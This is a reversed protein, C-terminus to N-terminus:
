IKVWTTAYAVGSWGDKEKLTIDTRLPKLKKYPQIYIPKSEVNNCKVPAPQPSPPLGLGDTRVLEDIATKGIAGVIWFPISVLAIIAEFVLSKQKM